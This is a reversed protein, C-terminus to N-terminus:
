MRSSLGEDVGGRTQVQAMIMRDVAADGDVVLRTSATYQILLGFGAFHNSYTEISDRAWRHYGYDLYPTIQLAGSDSLEFSRGLKLEADVTVGFKNQRLPAGIGNSSAVLISYGDYSTHGAAVTLELASYIDSIGFLPGQRSLATRVAPQMGSESDLYGGGTQHYVDLEHYHLDHTGLSVSFENNSEVIPTDAIASSCHVTSAVVVLQLAAKAVTDFGHIVVPKLDVGACRPKAKDLSCLRKRCIEVSVDTKIM